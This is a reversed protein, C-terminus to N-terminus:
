LFGSHTVVKVDYIGNERLMKEAVQKGTLRSVLPEQSYQKFKNKLRQSVILGIVMFVIGILMLMPDFM